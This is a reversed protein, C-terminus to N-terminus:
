WYLMMNITAYKYIWKQRPMCDVFIGTVTYNSRFTRTTVTRDIFANRIHKSKVKISSVCQKISKVREVSGTFLRLLRKGNMINSQVLYTQLTSLTLSYSFPTKCLNRRNDNEIRLIHGTSLRTCFSLTKLFLFTVTHSSSTVKLFFADDRYCTLNWFM